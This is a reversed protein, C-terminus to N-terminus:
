ELIVGENAIEADEIYRMPMALSSWGGAQQLRNLPTGSRAAQTAWYHRLDHPSLGEIGADEGLDKVRKTIARPSMGATTLEGGKRSGRLLKAGPEAYGEWERAADLTDATL